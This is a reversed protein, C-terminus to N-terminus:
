RAPPPVDIAMVDDVPVIHDAGEVLLWLTGRERRTAVSVVECGDLRTGDRLSLSVQRGELRRLEQPLTLSSM